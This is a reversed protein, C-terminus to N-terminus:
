KANRRDNFEKIEFASLEWRIPWVNSAPNETSITRQHVNFVSEGSVIYSNSQPGNHDYRLFVHEIGSEDVIAGDRYGKHSVVKM